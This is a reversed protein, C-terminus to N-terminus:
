NQRRIIVKFLNKVKLIMDSKDNKSKYDRKLVRNGKKKLHAELKGSSEKFIKRWSIGGDPVDKFM